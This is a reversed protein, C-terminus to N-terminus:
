EASEDPFRVASKGYDYFLAVVTKTKKNETYSFYIAALKKNVFKVTIPIKKYDDQYGIYAADKRNWRLDTHGLLMRMGGFVSNQLSEEENTEEKSWKNDLFEYTYYKNGSKGIYTTSWTSNDFTQSIMTKENATEYISVQDYGAYYLTANQFSEVSLAAEMEEYTLEESVITAPDTDPTIAGTEEKEGDANTYSSPLTVSANGYNYFLAETEYSEEVKNLTYFAALKKNKFKFVYDVPEDEGDTVPLVYGNETSNWIATSYDGSQLVWGMLSNPTGCVTWEDWEEKDTRERIFGEGGDVYTREYYLYYKGYVQSIYTTPASVGMSKQFMVRKNGAYIVHIDDVVVTRDEDYIYYSLEVNNFNAASFATNWQAKTLKESVITRADTEATIGNGGSGGSGGSGGPTEDGCAALTGLCAASLLVACATCLIKRM